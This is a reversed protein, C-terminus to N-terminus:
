ALLRYDDTKQREILLWGSFGGAVLFLGFVFTAPLTFETMLEILALDDPSVSTIMDFQDFGYGYVISVVDISAVAFCVLLLGAAQMSIFAKRTTKGLMSIM